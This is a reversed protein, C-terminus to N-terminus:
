RKPNDDLECFIDVGEADTFPSPLAMATLPNEGLFKGMPLVQALFTEQIFKLWLKNRFVILHEKSTLSKSQKCIVSMAM